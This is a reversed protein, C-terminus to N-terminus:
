LVAPAFGRRAAPAHFDGLRPFRAGSKARGRADGAVADVGHGQLDAASWRNDQLAGHVAKATLYAHACPPACTPSRRATRRWSGAATRLLKPHQDEVKPKHRRSLDNVSVIGSQLEKLGLAVAPRGWGFVTEARRAQGALLVVAVDAM